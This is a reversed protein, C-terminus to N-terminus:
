GVNKFVEVIFLVIFITAIICSCFFIYLSTLYKKCLQRYSYNKKTKCIIMFQNVANDFKSIKNKDTM